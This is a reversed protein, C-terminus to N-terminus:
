PFLSKYKFINQTFILFLHMKYEVIFLNKFLKFIKKLHLYFATM